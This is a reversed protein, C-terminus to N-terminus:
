FFSKRAVRAAAKPIRETLSAIIAAVAQSKKSEFTPRVFPHASVRVTANARRSRITGGAVARRPVFKHGNEVWWWYFADRGAKRQGRGQRIGVRWVKHFLTELERVRVRYVARRLTGPPVRLGRARFHARAAIPARVQLETEIVQAGASMAGNLEKSGVEVPLAKLADNIEKLGKMQVTIDIVHGGPGRIGHLGPDV